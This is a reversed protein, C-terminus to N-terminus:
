LIGVSFKWQSCQGVPQPNKASSSMRSALRRTGTNAKGLVTARPFLRILCFFRKQYIIVVRVRDLLSQHHRLRPAHKHMMLCLMGRTNVTFLTGSKGVHRLFDFVAVRDPPLACRLHDLLGDRSSLWKSVAKKRGM